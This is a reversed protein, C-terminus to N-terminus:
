FDNLQIAATVLVLSSFNEIEELLVFEFTKGFKIVSNAVVLFSRSSPWALRHNSKISLAALLLLLYVRSVM